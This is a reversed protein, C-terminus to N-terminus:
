KLSSVSHFKEWCYTSYLHSQTWHTRNSLLFELAKIEETPNNSDFFNSAQRTHLCFGAENLQARALKLSFAFPFNQPHFRDFPEPTQDDYVTVIVTRYQTLLSTAEILAASTCACGGSLAISNGHHHFLISFLGAIANHVSTSFATPSLEEHQGLTQLLKVTLGIDGWRSAFVMPTLEDSQPDYLPYVSEIVARGLPSLRRRMIPSLFKVPAKEITSVQVPARLWSLWKQQTDLGPAWANWNVLKLMM